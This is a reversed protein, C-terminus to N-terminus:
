FPKCVVHKVSALGSYGLKELVIDVAKTSTKAEIEVKVENNNDETVIVVFKM